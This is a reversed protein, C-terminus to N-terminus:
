EFKFSSCLWGQIKAGPCFCCCSKSIVTLEQFAKYSVCVLSRNCDCSRLNLVGPFHKVWQLCAQKVNWLAFLSQRSYGEFAVQWFEQLGPLLFVNKQKQQTFSPMLSDRVGSKTWRIVSCILYFLFLLLGRWMLATSVVQRCKSISIWLEVAWSDSNNHSFKKSPNLKCNCNWQQPPWKCRHLKLLLVSVNMQRIASQHKIVSQVVPCYVKHRGFSFWIHDYSMNIM